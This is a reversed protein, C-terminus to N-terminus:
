MHLSDYPVAAVHDGQATRRERQQYQQLRNVGITITTKTAIEAGGRHHDPIFDCVLYSCVSYISRPVLYMRYSIDDYAGLVYWTGTRKMTELTYIRPASGGIDVQLIM